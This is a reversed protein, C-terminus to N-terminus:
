ERLTDYYIAEIDRKSAPRPNTIVCVDRLANEALSPIDNKQIGFDRFAGSFGCERRFEQIADILADQCENLTCDEVLLGIAKALAGYRKAANSFNFKVVHPFLISNCQGHPTDFRGGVSHAMAHVLGLSANSFALGAHLSALMMNKRYVLNGPERIVLPLYNKTLRAAELAHLDTIPSNANSVYAEFAHVMVDIGTTASLEADITTTTVPDILSVDPVLAKSVIAIKSHKTPDSIIAFPSVDAASGATTPICILPAGPLTIRDVGEYDLINGENAAVISIGKACDVVSGGGLAVIIDCDNEKYFQAGHMVEHDKPNPTIESFRVYPIGRHILRQTLQATWGADIIGPDTVVLVKEGGFNRVYGDVLERAQMGFVFEPAVFKRLDLSNDPM